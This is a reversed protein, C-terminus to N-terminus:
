PRSCACSCRALGARGAARAGAGCRWACWWAVALMLVGIGVMIRFSWFVPAVPPHADRFENLGKIEADIDHALILSALKPVQSRTTPAAQGERRALRVADAAREERHALHGRHRRDEAPQHELTNLGHMDGAFIQLPIAIAAAIM